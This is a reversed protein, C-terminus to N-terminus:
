GVWRLCRPVMDMRAIAMLLGKVRIFEATNKAEYAPELQEFCFDVFEHYEEFTMKQFLQRLYEQKDKFGSYIDAYRALNSV